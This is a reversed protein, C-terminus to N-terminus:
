DLRTVKYYAPETLDFVIRTTSPGKEAIRVRRVLADDIVHTAYRHNAISPRSHLVDFYLRDPNYERQAKFEFKGTTELIVRTSGTNSFSHIATVQIIGPNAAALSPLITLVAATQWWRRDM